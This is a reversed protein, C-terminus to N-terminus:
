ADSKEDATDDGVDPSINKMMKGLSTKSEKGQESSHAVQGPHACRAERNSHKTPTSWSFVPHCIEMEADRRVLLDCQSAIREPSLM